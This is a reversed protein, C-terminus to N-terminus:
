FSSNVCLIYGDWRYLQFKGSTGTAKWRRSVRRPHWVDRRFRFQSFLLLCKGVPALRLQDTHDITGRQLLSKGSEFCRLVEFLLLLLLFCATKIKSSSSPLPSSASFVLGGADKPRWYLCVCVCVSALYVCMCFLRKSLQAQIDLASQTHTYRNGKFVCSFLGCNGTIAGVAAM